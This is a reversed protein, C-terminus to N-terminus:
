IGMSKAIVTKMIENTGAYITQVRADLYAKAIPYELMYGYGGHLQLCENVVKNLLDSTWYKAMCTEKIINKGAVHETLLRDVFTRAIETETSMEVLKFQTNQFKSIPKGFAQREQCYKITGEIAAECGAVAGIAVVLREQQLKQMLYYFGAGEDGLLADTPLEVDEFHLESTDQAHMGIKKLNRGKTFGKTGADVIFLSIGGHKAEPDTKAVVIVADCIQGNSIFTKSGNLIWKDGKKIASTKVAALDSGTNPETMAIALICEGSAAKPLYKKKQAESGFAEIYPAIIDSHLSLALGSTGAKAVEETIIANYLFDAGMGGYEEAQSPCLFGLEGARRWIEKPVQQQEEWKEHFPVVEKELWKRFNDRFMDHDKTFITREM